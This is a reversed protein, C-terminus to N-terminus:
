NGEQPVDHETVVDDPQGCKAELLAQVYPVLSRPIVYVAVLDTQGLAALTDAGPRGGLAERVRKRLREKVVRVFTDIYPDPIIM